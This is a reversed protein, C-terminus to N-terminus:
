REIASRAHLAHLWAMGALHEASPARVHQREAAEGFLIQFTPSIAGCEQAPAFAIDVQLTSGLLFVRYVTQGAIVDVHHVAGHDRSMRETWDEILAPIAQAEGVGFMVDVDSWEDQGGTATSGFWAAGTIRPDQRAAAILADRVQDREQPTFM